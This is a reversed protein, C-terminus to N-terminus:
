AGVFAVIESVVEAEGSESLVFFDCEPLAGFSHQAETDAFLVLAAGKAADRDESSVAGQALLVYPVNLYEAYRAGHRGPERHGVIVQPELASLSPFMSSANSPIYLVEDHSERDVLAANESLAVVEHGAEAFATLIAHMATDAEDWPDTPHSDTLACIKM